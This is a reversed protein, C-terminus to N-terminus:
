WVNATAVLMPIGGTLEKFKESKLSIEGPWSVSLRDVQGCEVEFGVKQGERGADFYDSTTVMGNDVAWEGVDEINELLPCDEIYAGVILKASIDIGM